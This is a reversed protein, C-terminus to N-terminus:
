VSLWPIISLIFLGVAVDFSAPKMLDGEPPILPGRVAALIFAIGGLAIGALATM